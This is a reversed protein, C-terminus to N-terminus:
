YIASVSRPISALVKLEPCPTSKSLPASAKRADQLKVEGARSQGEREELRGKGEKGRQVASSHQALRCHAPADCGVVMVMMVMMRTMMTMMMMMMMMMMVMMTMMMMVVVMMVM